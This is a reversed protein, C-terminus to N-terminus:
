RQSIYHLGLLGGIQYLINPIWVIFEPRLAARDRLNDGTLIFVYFLLALAVSAILGIAMEGRHTRVGFPVGILLFALPAFGLSFRTHLNTYIRSTDMGREEFVEITALLAPLDMYEPSRFLRRENMRKRLDLPLIMKPTRVREESITGGEGTGRVTRIRAEELELQLLETAADYTLRGRRAHIDERVRSDESLVYIQVDELREGDVEEVYVVYGPIEVYWGPELFATPSSLAADSSKLLDARHHCHPAVTTQLYICLACVVVTIAVCPAAIQWLGIGLARMATVERDASLRGFVLIAACLVSFPLTYTLLFPVLLAMSRVVLMPSAGKALLDFVRGFNGSLMVFTLVALALLMTGAFQRAIYRNLTKM